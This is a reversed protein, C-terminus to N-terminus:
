LDIKRCAELSRTLDLDAGVLPSRRLAALIGGKQPPEGAITQSVSARIRSAETDNRALRKALSRILERDSDLGLVEFRAMGRENLFHRYNQLARKQSTNAM